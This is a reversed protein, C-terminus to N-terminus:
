ATKASLIAGYLLEGSKLLEYVKSGPMGAFDAVSPHLWTPALQRIMQEKAPAALDLAQLVNQTIEIDSQIKLGAAAFEACVADWEARPRMDCWCFSGGPRLVRAVQALFQPMSAYCHSSEVNIVVDYSATQLPLNLADGQRFRLRRTNHLNQALQTARESYDLGMMLQPQKTRALYEAGGGRGSGVEVVKKGELEVGRTVREYLGIFPRNPTDQESLELQAIAEDWFGYNM